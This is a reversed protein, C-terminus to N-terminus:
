GKKIGAWFPWCDVCIYHDDYKIGPKKHCVECLKMKRVKKIRMKVGKGSSSCDMHWLWHDICLTKHDKRGGCKTVRPLAPNCYKDTLSLTKTVM